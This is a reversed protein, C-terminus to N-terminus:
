WKRGLQLSLYLYVFYPKNNELIMMPIDDLYLEGGIGLEVSKVYDDFTAWDFNLGAKGFAGPIVKIESLGKTFGSYGYISTADIFYSANEESYKESSLYLSGDQNKLIELYYPKVLGLSPGVAYNFNVEFGSKEAKEGILFKNGYAVKTNFFSNQKGYIFPRPSSYSLSFNYENIKKLEKPHKMFMLEFYYVRKKDMNVRKTLDGFMGWGSTTLKVGMSLETNYMLGKTKTASSQNLVIAKSGAQTIKITSDQQATAAIACFLISILLSKIKM